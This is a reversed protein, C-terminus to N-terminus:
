HEALALKVGLSLGDALTYLIGTGPSVITILSTGLFDIRAEARRFRV